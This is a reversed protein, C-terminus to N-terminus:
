LRRGTDYGDAIAAIITGRDEGRVGRADGVVHAEIGRAEALRALDASPRRHAALVITSVDAQHEQGVRDVVRVEDVPLVRVQQVGRFLRLGKGTVRQLLYLSDATAMRAALRRDPEAVTVRAGRESLYDAVQLGIQDGGVVLIDDGAPMLKELLDDVMLLQINHVNELGVVFGLRADPLSGTAVVLVDPSAQELLREDIVTNLRIEVGLRHLQREYWPLIDAIEQRGPMMAALKLQGGIRGKAECLLVKHGAFAARRAAELGACGAGAVLVRRPSSAREGEIDTVVHERGARPNVACSVEGREDRDFVGICGKCEGICPRIEALRGSRAKEIILPDAIQARGMAVLDARGRGVIEDAMVPDKIRVAAMVPLSTHRKVEEALYLYAGQEEYMSPVHWRRGGVVGGTIHLCGAGEAELVPALGCADPLTWGGQPLFDDGNLKVGTPVRGGTAKVVARLVEVLFRTRNASDGGYEDARRNYYPILFMSLLYDFAANVEIYDFGAEVCLGAARAFGDAIEGIEQKTIERSAAHRGAALPPIPSPGAYVGSRDQGCPQTLQLGAKVGHRHIAHVLDQLGPLVREDWLSIRRPGPAGLGAPHVLTSSAIIMGPRAEAREEYFAILQRTLRGSEDVGFGLTMGPLVVRNEIQMSGIRIPSFLHKLGAM